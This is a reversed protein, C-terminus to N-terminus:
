HSIQKMVSLYATNAAGVRWDTPPQWYGNMKNFELVAPDFRGLQYGGEDTMFTHAAKVANFEEPKFVFARHQAMGRYVPDEFDIINYKINTNPADLRDYFKSRRIRTALEEAAIGVEKPHEMELTMAVLDPRETKISEAVRHLHLSGIGMSRNAENTAVFDLGAFKTATEDHMSTFSFAGLKGDADRTAHVMIRGRSVLDAVEDVPQREAKPFSAEYLNIVDPELEKARTTTFREPHEMTKPLENLKMSPKLDFAPAKPMLEPTFRFAAYGGAIGGLGMATYDVLGSGVNGALVTKNHALSKPNNWVDYAPAGLKIGWDAVALGVGVKGALPIASKVFPTLAEGLLAPNKTLAALGAGVLAATAVENVLEGKHNQFRDQVSNWLNDKLSAFLEAENGINTCFDTREM